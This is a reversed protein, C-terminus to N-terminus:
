GTYWECPDHLFLLLLTLVVRSHMIVASCGASMVRVLVLWSLRLSSNLSFQDEQHNSYSPGLELCGQSSPYPCCVSDMDRLSSAIRIRLASVVIM